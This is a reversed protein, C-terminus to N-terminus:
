VEDDSELSRNKIARLLIETPKGTPCPKNQTCMMYDRIKGVAMGLAYEGIEDESMDDRM